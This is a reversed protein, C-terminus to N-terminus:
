KWRSIKQTAANWVSRWWTVAPKQKRPNLFEADAPTTIKIDPYICTKVDTIQSLACIKKGRVADCRPRGRQMVIHQTQHKECTTTVTLPPTVM